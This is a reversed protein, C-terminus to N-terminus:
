IKKYLALTKELFDQGSLGAIVKQQSAYIRNRYADDTVAREMTAALSTADAREFMAEDDMFDPMVGVDTSILPRRCAMIEFAARAITESWKSAIVGLDMASIADAVDPVNGTIRTIGEINNDRIWGEVEAQTTATEFGLLMLRLQKMGKQHYLISVAEILEKQGKVADFRGLMSVVFHSDDYGMKKRFSDRGDANFVFKDTDVGGFITSVKEAPVHLENIFHRAMVSNTAIVADAVHTHLWRNPFNNKPLRQDGRTRVLKFSKCQKKLLGWLIFGEGRHCNVVDPTFDTVLKHLQVYARALAIPNSTNLDIHVPEFGWERAKADAETDPQTIVLTEHGAERLLRSLYLGYWATANFWRVNMIQITKM